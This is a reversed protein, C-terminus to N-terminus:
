KGMKPKMPMKPKPIGSKPPLDGQANGTYHYRRRIRNIQFLKQATFSDPHVQDYIIKFDNWLGPDGERFTRPDIKKQKLFDEFDLLEM